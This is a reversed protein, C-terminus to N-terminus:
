GARRLRVRLRVLVPDEAVFILFRPIAIGFETLRITVEGSARYEDALAIVQLPIEVERSTERITLTGRLTARMAGATPPDRLAAAGRFTIYPHQDTRLFDRRMQGDRIGNGTTLARADVRAEVAAAFAEGDTRITATGEVRDTSGVFGGRNDRMVFEVRSDGPEVRFAGIPLLTPAQVLLLLTALLPRMMAAEDAYRRAAAIREV